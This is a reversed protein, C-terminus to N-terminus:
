NEMLFDDGSELLLTDGAELGFTNTIVAPPSATELLLIDGTELLVIGTGDELQLGFDVNPVEVVVEDIFRDPQEPRPSGRHSEQRSRVFDQPHRTEFSEARVMAGSWEEKLGDEIRIKFGTRDCILYNNPTNTDADPNTPPNALQNTSTDYVM